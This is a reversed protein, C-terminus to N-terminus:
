ATVKSIWRGLAVKRDLVKPEPSGGNRSAENPVRTLGSFRSEVVNTLSACLLICFLEELALREPVLWCRTEETEEFSSRNCEM